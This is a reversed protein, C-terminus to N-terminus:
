AINVAQDGMRELDTNIKIIAVIFRLDAALPQQLALLRLCAGDIDIHSQNVSQEIEYVNKVRSLDRSQLAATADDIAREVMGAMGVLKEKLERLSVEFQREMM